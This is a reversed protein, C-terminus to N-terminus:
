AGGAGERVWYSEAGADRSAWARLDEAMAVEDAWFTSIQSGYCAVAEIKARLDRAGVQPRRRRWGEASAPLGAARAAPDAAYPLDEYLALAAAHPGGAAWRLAADHALRHDVHGGIALPALVLEARAEHAEDAVAAALADGRLAPDRPDPPGFLADLDAYLATGDPGRRYIADPLDLRRAALGLRGLAADDERRRLAVMAAAAARDLGEPADWRAHHEAAFPSLGGPPPPGAFLTLVTARGGTERRWRALVAGLSLVADDYHPSLVLLSLPLSALM